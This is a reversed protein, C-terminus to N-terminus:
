LLGVATVFILLNWMFFVSPVRVGLWGMLLGTFLAGSTGLSVRGFKVSGLCLGAFVAVTLMFVPNSILSGLYQQM